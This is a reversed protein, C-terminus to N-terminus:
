AGSFTLGVDRDLDHKKELDDDLSKLFTAAGEDGGIQVFQLGVQLQKASMDKLKRAYKVIVAEVNQKRDPEGDTLLIVNLGKRRRDKRYDFMYENLEEDLIDATLTPGEPVVKSFLKMVQDASTLNRREADGIYKNFFRIDVGNEDYKTAISAIKALIHATTKWRPGYMSDSDDVVFLTDYQQLRAYVREKDPASSPRDDSSPTGTPGNADKATEACLPLGLHARLLNCVADLVITRNHQVESLRALDRYSADIGYAKGPAKDLIASEKPVVFEDSTMREEHFSIARINFEKRVDDFEASLNTIQRNRPKLQRALMSKPPGGKGLAVQMTALISAFDGGSDTQHHPVAFFICAKVPNEFDDESFGSNVIESVAQKILLGGVGQGFFIVPRKSEGRRARNLKKVLNEGENLINARPNLWSNASWGYSLVRSQIGATELAKPLTDYSWSDERAPHAYHCAFSNIAHGHAGHIFVLDVYPLAPSSLKSSHLCTLGLFENDLAISAAPEGAKVAFSKDQMSLAQRAIAVSSFTVAVEKTSSPVLPGMRSILPRTKLRAELWQIVDHKDVTLPLGSIRVTQSDGISLETPLDGKFDREQPVIPDSNYPFTAHAVLPRGVLSPGAADYSIQPQPDSKVTQLKSSVQLLPTLETSECDHDTLRTLFPTFRLDREWIILAHHIDQVTFRKHKTWYIHANRELERTLSSTFSNRSVGDAISEKSSAGLFWNDGIGGNRAALTAFCCDLILLVDAPSGLLYSQVNHWNLTPHDDQVNPLWICEQPNGGAHGGYYLIMLDGPRKGKRFNMIERMLEYESDQTPIDWTRTTFKFMSRFVNNLKELEELVGLDDTAWRLLLVDVHAYKSQPTAPPNRTRAVEDLQKQMNKALHSAPTPGKEQSITGDNGRSGIREARTTSVPGPGHRNNSAVRSLEELAGDTSSTQTERQEIFSKIFDAQEEIQDETIGLAMLDKLIDGWSPHASNLRAIGSNRATHPLSPTPQAPM